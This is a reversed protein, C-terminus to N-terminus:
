AFYRLCLFLIRKAEDEGIYFDQNGSELMATSLVVSIGFAVKPFRTQIRKQIIARITDELNHQYTELLGTIKKDEWFYTKQFHQLVCKRIEVIQRITRGSMLDSFPMWKETLFAEVVDDNATNDVNQANEAFVEKMAKDRSIIEFVNCLFKYGDLSQYEYSM